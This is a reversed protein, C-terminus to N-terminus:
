RGPPRIWLRWTAVTRNGVADYATLRVAHRGPSLPRRPTWALRGRARDYRVTGVTRGDVRLVLGAALVRSRRDRVTARLTPTRDRVVGRPRVDRVAPGTVDVSWRRVAPTPDTNGAADLARVRVQHRGERLARFLTAPACRGWPRADLRCEFAGGGESSTFRFAARTARVTGVPGGLIRTQPAVTDAPLAPDGPERVVVTGRMLTGHISCLYDYVGPRTFQYRIPPGGPSRYETVAPAWPSRSDQSTLDHDIVARDFQWEVVDGVAVTVESTGTDASVWRSGLADDVGDVVWTRGEPAVAVAPPPSGPAVLVGAVALLAALCALAAYRPSLRHAPM